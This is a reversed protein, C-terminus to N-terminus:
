EDVEGDHKFFIDEDNGNVIKKLHERFTEFDKFFVFSNDKRTIIHYDLLLDVKDM